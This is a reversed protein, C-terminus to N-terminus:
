HKLSQYFLLSTNIIDQKPLESQNKLYKTDQGTRDLFYILSLLFIDAELFQTLFNQYKINSYVKEKFIKLAQYWWIGSTDDIIKQIIFYIADLEQLSNERVCDLDILYKKEKDKMLNLSHFDGHCFGVYFLNNKLFNESTIKIIQYIKDDVLNKVVELGKIVYPMEEPNINKKISYKRFLVLFEKAIEYQESENIIPELIQTKRLLIKHFLFDEYQYQPIIQAIEPYHISINAIAQKEELFFKQNKLIIKYFKKETMLNYHGHLSSSMRVFKDKIIFPLVKPLLLQELKYYKKNLKHKLKNLLNM